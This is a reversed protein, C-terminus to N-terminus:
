TLPESLWTSDKPLYYRPSFKVLGLEVFNFSLLEQKFSIKLGESQQDVVKMM